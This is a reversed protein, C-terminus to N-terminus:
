RMLLAEITNIRSIGPAAKQEGAIRIPLLAVLLARACRSVNLKLQQVELGAIWSRQLRVHRLHWMVAAFRGVGLLEDVGHIRPEHDDRGAVDVV